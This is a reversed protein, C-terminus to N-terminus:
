TGKLAGKEAIPAAKFSRSRLLSFANTM